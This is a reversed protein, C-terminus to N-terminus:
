FRWNNPLLVAEDDIALRKLSQYFGNVKDICSLSEINKNLQEVSDVGIVVKDVLPEILVFCLCLANVPVKFEKCLELIEEMTKKAPKFDKEIKIKDLFFLGQLFVSRVQIEIGKKNLVPFYKEFRQDLINYPLQVMDFDINELLFELEKPRYISVGIKKVLGKAKIKELENWVDINRILDNIDHLMYGYISSKRLRRLSKNYHEKIKIDGLKPVKSIIDFSLGTKSLVEGIIEESNGYSFATDIMRIGNKYSYELIKSVNMKSVQGQNNAIGYDIGFQVTGISLRKNLNELAFKM